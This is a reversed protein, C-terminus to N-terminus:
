IKKKKIKQNLIESLRFFAVRAQEVMPFNNVLQSCVSVLSNNIYVYGILEGVDIKNNIMMIYGIVLSIVLFMKSFYDGLIQKKSLFLSFDTNFEAYDSYKKDIAENLKNELNYVKVEEIGKSLDIM